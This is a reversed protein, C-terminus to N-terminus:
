LEIFLLLDGQNFDLTVQNQIAKNRISILGGLELNNHTLPYAFGTTTIEKIPTLPILSIIKNNVNNATYPPIVFFFRCFNDYFTLEIKKYYNLAVSLNGLFHDSANGNAGYIELHKIGKEMLFLLAKEFDTKNQDPTYIVEISQPIDETSLSDLDGIIYHPVISTNALYNHYAGDTCAIYQYKELRKPFQTPPEGNVFLLATQNMYRSM